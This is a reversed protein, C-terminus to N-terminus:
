AAMVREVDDHTTMRMHGIGGHRFGGILDGGDLFPDSTVLRFGDGIARLPHLTFINKFLLRTDRRIRPLIGGDPRELKQDVIGAWLQDTAELVTSGVAMVPGLGMKIPDKEKWPGTVYTDSTDNWWTKMNDGVNQFLGILHREGCDNTYRRPERLGIFSPRSFMMGM